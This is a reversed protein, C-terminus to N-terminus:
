VPAKWYARRLLIAVAGAGAGTVIGMAMLLAAIPAIDLTDPSEAVPLVAIAVSVWREVM